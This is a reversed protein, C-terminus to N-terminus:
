DIVIYNESYNRCNFSSHDIVEILNWTETGKKKPINKLRCWNTSMLAVSLSIYHLSESLGPFYGWSRQYSNNPYVQQPCCVANQTHLEAQQLLNSLTFNRFEIDANGIFVWSSKAKKM